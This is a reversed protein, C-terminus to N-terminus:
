QELEKSSCLQITKIVLQSIGMYPTADSYEYTVSRDTLDGDTQGEPIVVHLKRSSPLLIEAM